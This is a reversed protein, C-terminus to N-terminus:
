VLAVLQEQLARRLQMQGALMGRLVQAALQEEFAADQESPEVALFVTMEIGRQEFHEVDLVAVPEDDQTLVSRRRGCPTRNQLRSGFFVYIADFLAIRETTKSLFPIFRNKCTWVVQSTIFM